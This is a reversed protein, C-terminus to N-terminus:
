VYAVGLTDGEGTVSASKSSIFFLTRKPSSSTRYRRRDCSTTLSWTSAIRSTQYPNTPEFEWRSDRERALAVALREAVVEAGDALAETLPDEVGRAGLVILLPEVILV